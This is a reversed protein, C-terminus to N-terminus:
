ENDEGEEVNIYEKEREIRDRVLLVALAAKEYLVDLVERHNIETLVDVLFERKGMDAVEVYSGDEQKKMTVMGDPITKAWKPIITSCKLKPKLKEIFEELDMARKAVSKVSREIIGWMDPTIKFKSKDRSRYIAYILLAAVAKEGENTQFNYYM